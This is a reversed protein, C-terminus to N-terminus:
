VHKIITNIEVEGIVKAPIGAIVTHEKEFSKNVVANAGIATNNPISINGFIKAGPAIYVNNGIQPAEVQGGTAGINVCVHIRCNAGIKAASNVVITGYHAISLGPGFVNPPISFGLKVSITKFRYKLYYLYIQNLYGKKCNQFYEVKRLLKQFKWIPNPSIVNRIINSLNLEEIKLAIRDQENYYNYDLKSQIM